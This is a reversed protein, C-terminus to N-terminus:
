EAVGVQLFRRGEGELVVCTLVGTAYVGTDIGVRNHLNVPHLVPTHGHVIIKAHMSTNSLFDDRIWLLDSDTQNEMVRGPRIGAHVFAYDKMVVYSQLSRFFNHHRPPIAVTLAIRAQEFDASVEFLPPRVGYSLLTEAAGYGRWARYTEADALFDLLAAEHNGKIFHTVFGPPPPSLLRDIVGKSDPGRDIYDGLFILHKEGCFSIGDNAVKAILAELQAACGHIDGIAYVRVGAPVASM